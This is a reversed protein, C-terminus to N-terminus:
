RNVFHDFDKVYIIRMLDMDAIYYVPGTLDSFGVFSKGAKKVDEWLMLEAEPLSIKGTLFRILRTLSIGIYTVNRDRFYKGHKWNAYFLFSVVGALALIAVWAIITLVLAM